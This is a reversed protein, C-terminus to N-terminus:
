CITFQGKKEKKPSAPRQGEGNERPMYAQNLPAQESVGEQLSEGKGYSMNGYGKDKPM